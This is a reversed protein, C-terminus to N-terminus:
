EVRGGLEKAIKAITERAHETMTRRSKRMAGRWMWPVPLITLPLYWYYTVWPSWVSPLFQAVLEDTFYVGPWITFALVAAFIAPFKRLMRTQFRLRTGGDSPEGRAELVGEFPSGFATAQFLVGAAPSSTFGALRGRRSATTLREVIAASDLPVVVSQLGSDSTPTPQNPTAMRLTVSAALASHVPFTVRGGM